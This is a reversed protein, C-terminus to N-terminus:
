EVIFYWIDLYHTKEGKRETKILHQKHIVNKEDFDDPLFHDHEIEIHKVRKPM